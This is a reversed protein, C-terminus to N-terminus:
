LNSWDVVQTEPQTTEQAEPQSPLNGAVKNRANTLTTEIYDLEKKFEDESMRLSIASAASALKRGENESLAGMGKLRGVENLFQQSKLQELREEFNAAKSGPITYLMSSAGVASELGGGTKLQNITNLTNDITSLDSELAQQIDKQGQELKARRDQIDLELKQRKLDNDERKLQQELKRAENELKRQELGAKKIDITERQYETIEEPQGIQETERKTKIFQQFGRIENPALQFAENNLRDREAPDQTRAAQNMLQFAQAVKQQQAQQQEAQQAKQVEQQRQQGWAQAIQGLGSINVPDITFPNQVAM